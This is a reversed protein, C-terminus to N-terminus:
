GLAVCLGRRRVRLIGDANHCFTFAFNTNNHLKNVDVVFVVPYLISCVADLVVM